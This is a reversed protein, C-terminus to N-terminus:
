GNYDGTDYHIEISNNGFLWLMNTCDILSSVIDPKRGDKTGNTFANLLRSKGSDHHHQQIIMTEKISSNFEM